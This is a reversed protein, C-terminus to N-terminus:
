EGSNIICLIPYPSCRLMRDDLEPLLNDKALIPLIFMMSIFFPMTLVIEAVAWGM